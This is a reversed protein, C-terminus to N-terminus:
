ETWESTDAVGELCEAHSRLLKELEPYAHDFEVAVRLPWLGEPDAENPEVRVVTASIAHEEDGDPPFRVFIKVQQGKTLRQRTVLASGSQSM